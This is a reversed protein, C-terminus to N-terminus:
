FAGYGTQAKGLVLAHIDGTGEYTNVAELNVLHRMVHHQRLLGDGGLMDRAARAVDLALKTNKRKLLSILEPLHHGEDLLTALRFAALLGLSIETQMDVLKAQVLQKSALPKGFSYRSLSYRRVAHWCSEAAGLSGWAIGFRAVNLCSFPARLSTAKPLQCAEPVFVNDLTIHWSPITTLSLKGDIRQVSLGPTQREVVFGLIANSAGKAWIIIIDAEGALGIWRKQGDLVFGRRGQRTTRRATTQMHGPDSGGQPETLGFAGIAKGQVLLPLWKQKTALSAFHYIASMVLSSQVSILSRYGSDIREVERAVLGYSLYGQNPCNYGNLTMGFFGAKAMALVLSADVNEHKFDHDIRPMLAQECFVRARQQITHHKKTLSQDLLFPDQWRFCSKNNSKAKSM